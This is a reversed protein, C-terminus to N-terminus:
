GDTLEKVITKGVKQAKPRELAESEAIRTAMKYGLTRAVKPFSPPRAAMGHAAREATILAYTLLVVTV